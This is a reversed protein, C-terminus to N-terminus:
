ATTGAAFHVELRELQAPIARRTPDVLAMSTRDSWSQYNVM